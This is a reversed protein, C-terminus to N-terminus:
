QLASDVFCRHPSALKPSRERFVRAYSFVTQQEVCVHCNDVLPYHLTVKQLNTVPRIHDFTETGGEFLAFANTFNRTESCWLSYYNTTM